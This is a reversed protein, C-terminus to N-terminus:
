AALKEPASGSADTLRALTEHFNWPMWDSPRKRMRERNRLVAVLDRFPDVHNHVCTQILSMFLDGVYAGNLTQCFLSNNRHRIAKKLARECINNDLPAGAVRLFLTLAPWHNRLYQLAQGLSSSPEVKKASFQEEIWEKLEALVPGSQRQHLELREEGNLAYERAIAEYAYVDRFGQLVRACEAPFHAVVEVFKRRGHPICNARITEVEGSTNSSSADCM